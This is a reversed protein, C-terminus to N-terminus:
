VDYICWVKCFYFVFSWIISWIIRKGYRICKKDLAIRNINQSWEIVLRHDNSLCETWHNNIWQTLYIVYILEYVFFLTITKPCILTPHPILYDFRLQLFDHKALHTHYNSLRNINSRILNKLKPVFTSLANKVNKATLDMAKLVPLHRVRGVHCSM